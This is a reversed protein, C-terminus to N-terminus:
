VKSRSHKAKVAKTDYAKKRGSKIEYPKFVEEVTTFHYNCKKCFRYRRICDEKRVISGVYTVECGCSPCKLGIM